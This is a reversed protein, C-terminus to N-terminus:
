QLQINDIKLLFKMMLTFHLITVVVPFSNIKESSLRCTTVVKVFDKCKKNPCNLCTQKNLFDRTSRNWPVNQSLKPRPVSTAKARNVSIIVVIQTHVNSFPAVTLDACFM